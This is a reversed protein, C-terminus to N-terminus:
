TIREIGMFSYDNCSLLRFFSFTFMRVVGQAARDFVAVVPDPSTAM